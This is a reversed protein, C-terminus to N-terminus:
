LGQARVIYVGAYGDVHVGDGGSGKVVLVVLVKLLPHAKEGGVLGEERIGLGPGSDVGPGM